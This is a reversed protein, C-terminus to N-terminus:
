KDHTLPLYKVHKHQLYDFPCAYNSRNITLAYRICVWVRGKVGVVGGRSMDAVKHLLTSNYGTSVGRDFM